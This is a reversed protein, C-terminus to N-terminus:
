VWGQAVTGRGNVSAKRKASDCFIKGHDVVCGNDAGAVVAQDACGVKGLSPKLDSNEFAAGDDAAGDAGLVIDDGAAFDINTGRGVDHNVQGGHQTFQVQGAVAEFVELHVRPGGKGDGTFVPGDEKPAIQLFSALADGLDARGVGVGVATENAVVDLDVLTNKFSEELGGRWASKGPRHDFAVEGARGRTAQPGREVSGALEHGRVALENFFEEHTFVHASGQFPKGGLGAGWGGFRGSAIKKAPVGHDM